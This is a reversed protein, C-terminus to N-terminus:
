NEQKKNLNEKAQMAAALSVLGYVTDTPLICPESNLLASKLFDIQSETIKSLYFIKTKM